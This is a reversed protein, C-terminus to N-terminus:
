GRHGDSLLDDELALVSCRLAEVLGAAVELLHALGELLDGDGSPDGDGGPLDELQALGGEVQGDVGGLGLAGEVGGEPFGERLGRCEYILEGVLGAEGGELQM